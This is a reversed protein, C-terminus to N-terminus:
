GFVNKTEQEPLPFLQNREVGFGIVEDALRASFAAQKKL